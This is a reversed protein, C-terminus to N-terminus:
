LYSPVKVLLQPVVESVQELELELVLVEVELLVLVAPRSVTVVSSHMHRHVAPVVVELVLELLLPAM